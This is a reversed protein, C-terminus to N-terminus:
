DLGSGINVNMRPRRAVRGGRCILAELSRWGAGRFVLPWPKAVQRHTRRFSNRKSVSMGCDLDRGLNRRSQEPPPPAVTESPGQPGASGTLCSALLCPLTVNFRETM